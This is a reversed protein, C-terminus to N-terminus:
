DRGSGSQRQRCHPPHLCFPRTVLMGCCLVILVSTRCGCEGGLQAGLIDAAAGRVVGAVQELGWSRNQGRALSPRQAGTHGEHPLSLLSSAGAPAATLLLQDLLSWRGKASYIKSFRPTDLRAYLLQSASGAAHYAEQVQAPQLSKLGLAALGEVHAAAMGAGAFPGFRVATSPLGALQNASSHADLFANSSAYHAAGSQSWVASTSSFLLQSALPLAAQQFVGAGATQPLSPAACCTTLPNSDVATGRADQFDLGTLIAGWSVKVDAVTSFEELGMDHLLSFGSTGAAHAFHEIHPLHEHAWNLVRRLASANRSDVKVSVVTCGVATLESLSDAPLAGSRSAIVLLRTGQLALSRCYELGLGQLLAPFLCLQIFHTM